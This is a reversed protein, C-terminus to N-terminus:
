QTNNQPLSVCQTTARSPTQAHRVTVFSIHTVGTEGGGGGANGPQPRRRESTHAIAGRPHHPARAPDRGGHQATQGPATQATQVGVPPSLDARRHRSPHRKPGPERAIVGQDCSYDNCLLLLLIYTLSLLYYIM